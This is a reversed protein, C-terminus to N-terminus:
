FINKGILSQMDRNLEDALQSLAEVIMPENLYATVETDFLGYQAFIEPAVVPNKTIGLEKNIKKM